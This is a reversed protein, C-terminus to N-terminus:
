ILSISWSTKELLVNFAIAEKDDWGLEITYIFVYSIDFVLTYEMVWDFSSFIPFFTDM